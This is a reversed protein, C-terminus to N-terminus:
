NMEIRLRDGRAPDLWVMKLFQDPNKEVAQWQIDTFIFGFQTSPIPLMRYSLLRTYEDWNLIDCQYGAHDSTIKVSVRLDIRHHM